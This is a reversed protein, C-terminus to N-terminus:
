NTRGLAPDYSCSLKVPTYSIAEANGSNSGISVVIATTQTHGVDVLITKKGKYCLNIQSLVYYVVNM